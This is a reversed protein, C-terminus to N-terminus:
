ANTLRRDLNSSGHRHFRISVGSGYTRRRTLGAGTRHLASKKRHMKDKTDKIDESFENLKEQGRGNKPGQGPFDRESGEYPGHKFSHSLSADLSPVGALAM